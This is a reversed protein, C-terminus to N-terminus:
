VNCSDPKVVVHRREGEGYSESVVGPMDKVMLHVLRREFASMPALEITRKETKAQEVFSEVMEELLSFRQLRYKNVDLVFPISKQTRKKLLLRALHQFALLYEGEPGILLGAEPTQINVIITENKHLRSVGVQGLFGMHLLMEQITKKIENSNEM